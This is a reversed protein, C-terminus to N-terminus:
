KNKLCIIIEMTVKTLHINKLIDMMVIIMFNRYLQLCVHINM